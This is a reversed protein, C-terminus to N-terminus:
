DPRLSDGDPDVDEWSLRRPAAVLAASRDPAGAGPVITVPGAGASGLGLFAAVHERCIGDSVVDGPLIPGHGDIPHPPDGWACRRRIPRHAGGDVCPPRDPFAAAVWRVPQSAPQVPELELACGACITPTRM